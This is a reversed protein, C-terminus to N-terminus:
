TFIIYEKIQETLEIHNSYPLLQSLRQNRESSEIQKEQFVRLMEKLAQQNDQLDPVRGEQHIVALRKKMTRISLATQTTVKESSNNHNPTCLSHSICFRLFQMSDAKVAYQKQLFTWDAKNEMAYSTIPYHKVLKKLVQKPGIEVAQEVGASVLFRITDSWRVPSIMQRSLMETIESSQTYPHGTVNSIVPFTFPNFSLGTLKKQLREAVEIMSIHHFSSSVQLQNVIGKEKEVESSLLDLKHKPGSIVVQDPANYCAIAIDPLQAENNIHSLMEEVRDAHIHNVAMMGGMGNGGVEQMWEGRKKVLRIGESLNLAGSCVLASIEGLSHGALYDPRLSSHAMLVRFMAVSCIFIALQASDTRTLAALDSQFCLDTINMQLLEEAEDFVLRAEFFEDYWQKGMGTYQSGQGPFLFTTKKM